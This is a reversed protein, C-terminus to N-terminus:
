GVSLLSITVNWLKNGLLKEFEEELKEFCRGIEVLNDPKGDFIQLQFNQFASNYRFIRKALLEPFDIWWSEAGKSECTFLFKTLSCPALTTFAGSNGIM